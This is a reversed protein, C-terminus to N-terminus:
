DRVEIKNLDIKLDLQEKLEEADKRSLFGTQYGLQVYEFQESKTLNMIGGLKKARVDMFIFTNRSDEFYSM